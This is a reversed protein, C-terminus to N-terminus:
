CVRALINALASSHWTDLTHVELSSTSWQTVYAYVDHCQEVYKHWSILLHVQIGLTMCHCLYHLQQENNYGLMHRLIHYTISNQMYMSFIM